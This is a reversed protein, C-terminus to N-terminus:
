LLLLQPIPPVPALWDRAGRAGLLWLPRGARQYHARGIRWASPVGRAATSITTPPREAQLQSPFGESAFGEGPGGSQSSETTSKSQFTVRKRLIMLHLVREDLPDGAVIALLEAIGPLLPEEDRRYGEEAGETPGARDGMGDLLPDTRKM